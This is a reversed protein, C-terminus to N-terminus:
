RPDNTPFLIAVCGPADRLEGNIVAAGARVPTSTTVGLRQDWFGTNEGTRTRAAPSPNTTPSVRPTRRAGPLPGGPVGGTLLPHWGRRIVEDTLERHSTLWQHYSALGREAQNTSITAVLSAAEMASSKNFSRTGADYVM